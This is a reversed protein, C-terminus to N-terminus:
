EKQGPRNLALRDAPLLHREYLPVNELIHLCPLLLQNSRIPEWPHLLFLQKFPLTLPPKERAVHLLSRAISYSRMTREPRTTSPEPIGDYRASTPILPPLTTSSPRMLPLAARVMSAPPRTTAGPNM